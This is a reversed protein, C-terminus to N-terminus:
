GQRWTPWTWLPRAATSSLTKLLGILQQQTQHDALVVVEEMDGFGKFYKRLSADMYHYPLGGVFIRSFTTDKRFGHM